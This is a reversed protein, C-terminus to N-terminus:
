ASEGATDIAAVFVLLSTIIIPGGAPALELTAAALAPMFENISATGLSAGGQAAAIDAWPIKPVAMSIASGESLGSAEHRVRAAALAVAYGASTGAVRASARTTAAATSSGAASGGYGRRAIATSTGASTGSSKARALGGTSSQSTGASSGAARVQRVSPTSDALAADALPSFGLM